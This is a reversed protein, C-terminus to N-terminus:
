MQRKDTKESSQQQGSFLFSKQLGEERWIAEYKDKILKKEPNKQQGSFNKKCGNKEGFQKM